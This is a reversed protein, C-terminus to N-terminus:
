GYLICIGRHIRSFKSQISWNNKQIFISDILNYYFDKAFMVSPTKCVKFVRMCGEAMITYLCTVNNLLQFTLFFVSSSSASIVKIDSVKM